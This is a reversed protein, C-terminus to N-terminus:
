AGDPDAEDEGTWAEDQAKWAEARDESTQKWNRAAEESPYPGLSDDPDDREDRREPRQHTLCWYWETTSM